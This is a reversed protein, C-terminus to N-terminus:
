HVYLNIQGGKLAVFLWPQKPHFKVSVIAEKAKIQKLPVIVANSDDSVTAHGVVILGNKGGSAFLPLVPHFAVCTVFSSHYTMVHHTTSSLASDFWHLSHESGGILFNDGSFHQAFNIITEVTRPKLKKKLCQNVLDYLRIDVNTVVWLSSETLHFDADRLEGRLNSFPQQTTQKSLRHFYISETKGGEPCVTLFYDSNKHWKCKMVEHKHKINIKVFNEDLGSKPLKWKLSSLADTKEASLKVIEAAEDFRVDDGTRPVVLYACKAVGVCLIEYMRAWSLCTVPNTNSFKMKLVCKTLVTDFIRVCGDSFGAALLTGAPNLELCKLEIAEPNNFAYLFRYPFPRLDAPKPLKPLVQDSTVKIKLKKQRPCMYLDLCREFREQMLNGYAPVSRLNSFKQPIFNMERYEREEELMARKEDETLLFENPPNYSEAQSPLAMKPAPIIAPHHKIKLNSGWIDYFTFEDEVKPKEKRIFGYKALRARIKQIQKEEHKSLANFSEKSPPVNNLPTERISADVIKPPLNKSGKTPYLKNMVSNILGIEESTLVHKRGTRPDVVTRWYNPDDHKALFNDIENFREPRMIKQADIDYGLHDMERYWELPVNGITNVIDEEDSSDQLYEDPKFDVVVDDIDSTDEIAGEDSDGGTVEESEESVSKRKLSKAETEPELIKASM